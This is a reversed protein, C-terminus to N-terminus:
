THAQSSCGEKEKEAPAGASDSNGSKVVGGCPRHLRLGLVHCTVKWCLLAKTLIDAMMNNTPCYVLNIIKKLVTYHIFHYGIDIHKTRAHYNNDKALVLVAQNNCHVTTSQLVSPPFLEGILCHMWICEKAAHMAAIYEAEATSLTVLEQKWSSWSVARSDIMFAHGSIAQCHDQSAGDVDTYGELDHQEGGYTLVLDHMGLLYRFVWKVAEWHAEGPNELFQSLTSIAFTIDPHTAVSAYMLSGIVERYPVKCM